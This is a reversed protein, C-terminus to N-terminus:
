LYGEKNFLTMGSESWIYGKIGNYENIIINSICKESKLVIGLFEKM